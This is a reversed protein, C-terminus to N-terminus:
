DQNKGTIIDRMHVFGGLSRFLIKHIWRFGLLTSPLLITNCTFSLFHILSGSASRDTLYKLSNFLHYFVNREQIFPKSQISSARQKTLSTISLKVIEYAPIASYGAADLDSNM